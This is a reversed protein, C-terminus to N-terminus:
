FNLLFNHDGRGVAIRLHIFFFSIGIVETKCCKWGDCVFIRRKRRRWMRKSYIGFRYFAQFHLYCHALWGSDPQSAWMIKGIKEIILADYANKDTQLRDCIGDCVKSGFVLPRSTTIVSIDVWLFLALWGFDPQSAGIKELNRSFYKTIKCSVVKTATM